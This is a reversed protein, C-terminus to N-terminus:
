GKAPSLSKAQRWIEAYVALKRAEEEPGMRLL